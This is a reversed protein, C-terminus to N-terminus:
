EVSKVYFNNLYYEDLKNNIIQLDHINNELIYNLCCYNDSINISKSFDNTANNVLLLDVVVKWVRTNIDTTYELSQLDKSKNLYFSKWKVLINILNSITKKLVDHSYISKLNLLFKFMIRNNIFFSYYKLIRNNNNEYNKIAKFKNYIESKTIIIILATNLCSINSQTMNGCSITKEDCLKMFLEHENEIIYESLKCKNNISYTNYLINYDLIHKYDILEQTLLEIDRFEFYEEISQTITLYISRIFVNSDIINETNGIKTIFMIFEEKDVLYSSVKFLGYKNYKIIDALLDFNMQLIQIVYEYKNANNSSIDIDSYIIDNIIVICLGLNIVHNQYLKNNSKLISELCNAFWYKSSSYKCELMLRLCLITLLGINNFKNEISIYTGTNNKLNKLTNRYNKLCKTLYEEEIECDYIYKCSTNIINNNNNNIKSEYNNPKYYINEKFNLIMQSLVNNLVNNYNSINSINTSLVNNDKVFEHLKEEFKNNPKSKNEIIYNFIVFNINNNYILLNKLEKECLISFFNMTFNKNETSYLYYLARLFQVKFTYNKNCKCGLEHYATPDNYNRRIDNSELFMNSLNNDYQTELAIDGWNIFLM